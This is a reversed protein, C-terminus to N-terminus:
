SGAWFIEGEPWKWNGPRGCAGSLMVGYSTWVAAIGNPLLTGVPEGPAIYRLALRAALAHARRALETYSIAENGDSVARANGFRAALTLLEASWAISKM